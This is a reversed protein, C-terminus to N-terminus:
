GERSPINFFGNSVPWKGEKSPSSTPIENQSIKAGEHKVRYIHKGAFEFVKELNPLRDFTETQHDLCLIYDVNLAAFAPHAPHLLVVFLDPQKLRFDLEEPAAPLDFVVHAYRNYVDRAQGAPDLKKWMELQPYAHVGNLAKVGLMRFLNPLVLDGYAIWVPRHEPRATARDLEVIKQSLPNNRVFETGGRALPNLDYTTAISAILIAPLVLRPALFLLPALAMAFLGCLLATKFPYNPFYNSIKFALAAHFAIWLLGALWPAIRDRRLVNLPQRRTAVYGALLLLDALGLGILTRNPPARELLSWRALLEPLGVLNWLLLFIIYGAIWLLLPRPAQRTRWWDRLMAALVLPFVIFFAAGECPNLYRWDPPAKFSLINGRFIHWITQDGGTSLRQGPYASNRIVALTDWNQIAFYAGAGLIVLLVLALGLRRIRRLTTENAASPLSDRQRWLWGGGAAIFILLYLLTILYPTYNFTFLFATACWAALAAAALIGRRTPATRLRMFALLTGGAFIISPACNLSWAQCFPAFLLVTAGCAATWHDNGTLRLLVLWAALWLGLAGFWWQFALGFDGSIFYGWVQPRFLVTLDRVPAAVSVIMNYHGDGILPSATPFAPNVARQALAHPLAVVWDDSRYGKPSNLFVESPPSGDLVTHWASFSYGHIGAAALGVGLIVLAAAVV